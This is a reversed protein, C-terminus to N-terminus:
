GGKGPVSGPAPKSLDAPPVLRAKGAAAEFQREKHRKYLKHGLWLGGVAVAGMPSRSVVRSVVLGAAAGLAGSKGSHEAIRSGIAGAVIKGLVGGPKRKSSM